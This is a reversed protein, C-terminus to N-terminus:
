FTYAGIDIVGNRRSKEYDSILGNISKGADIAPSNVSLHANFNASDILLPDINLSFTDNGSLQWSTLDNSTTNNWVFNVNNPSYLLNNDSSVNDMLAAYQWNILGGDSNGVYPLYVLNNSVEFFKFNNDVRLLSLNPASNQAISILTNNYIRNMHLLNNGKTRDDAVKFIIAAQFNGSGISPAGNNPKLFLNNRITAGGLGMDIMQWTNDSATFSNREIIVDAHTAASASGPNAPTMSVMTFGGELLNDAIISQLSTGGTGLRINPQHALGASSWGANNFMDNYQILLHNSYGVRLPGHDAFNTLCAGCKGESGSIANRDQKMTNAVLASLRGFTGFIGYDQWNLIHNDVIMVHQSPSSDLTSSGGHPYIATDMGSFTNKYILADSVGLYFWIGLAHVGLGTTPDYPGNFNLQTITIQSSDQIFFISQNTMLPGPIIIPDVGTDYSGILLEASLERLSYQQNAMFNDGARFLVRTPQSAQNFRLNKLFTAGTAFSTFHHTSDQSPCASFNNSSSVCYTQSAYVVNPDLVTININLNASSGDSALVTLLISYNGAREYVHAGMPSTSQNADIGPRQQFKSGSDGYNWHYELEHFPESVGSATTATADFIIGCPATCQTRSPILSPTIVTLNTPSPVISMTFSSVGTDGQDDTVTLEFTLQTASTVAPATFSAIASTNNTITVIPLGATQVWQYQNISGDSDRSGSGNLTASTNEQTSSAALINATPPINTTSLPRVTISINKTDTLGSVDTVLLSFVFSTETQVIPAIFSSVSTNPNTLVITPTGSLQSWLFSDIADDNDYSNQGNLTVNANSSVTFDVDVVAVPALPTVPAVNNQNSSSNSKSSEGCAILSLISISVIFCRFYSM